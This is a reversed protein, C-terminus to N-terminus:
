YTIPTLDKLHETDCFRDIQFMQGTYTIKYLCLNSHEFMDMKALPYHLMLCLFMRMARGHMCILIQKEEPRSLILDLVPKQRNQVQQPSEGGELPIDVDGNRWADMLMQFSEDGEPTIKKGERIGWSIENLGEYSEHPLGKQIFGDVSQIARKLKSTYVKDFDINQFSEFFAQAQAKGWDNLDADIGSGQVIHQRNYDTEGHRILYIEKKTM